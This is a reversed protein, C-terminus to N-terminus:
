ESESELKMTPVRRWDITIVAWGKSFTQSHGAQVKVPNLERV